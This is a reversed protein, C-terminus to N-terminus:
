PVASMVAVSGRLRKLMSDFHSAAVSIDDLAANDLPAVAPELAEKGYGLRGVTNSLRVAMFSALAYYFRAAFPPDEGLKSMLAGRDISLVHANTMARVTATPPKPDVFSIEGIIEGSFLTAIPQRSHRTSVQLEGELLIYLSSIPVGEEILMAGSTVHRRVGNRVLWDIDADSLRSLLELAKRM